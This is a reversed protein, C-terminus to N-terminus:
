WEQIENIRQKVVDPVSVKCHNKYDYFVILGDGEAVVRKLKRSAVFYNMTFRDEGVESVLAGVAIEDPYVLPAKFRCGTSALIPGLHHEEMADMVGTRNFYAIRASEFYRFYVANNVHNFADMEGWAVQVDIIVPCHALLSAKLESSSSEGAPETSM